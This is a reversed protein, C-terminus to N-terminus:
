GRGRIEQRIGDISTALATVTAANQAAERERAVERETQRTLHREMDALSKESSERIQKSLGTIAGNKADIASNLEAIRDAHEARIGKIEDRNRSAETDKERLHYRNTVYLAVLALGAIGISQLAKVWEFVDSM